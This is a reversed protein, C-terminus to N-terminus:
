IRFELWYALVLASVGLALLAADLVRQRVM